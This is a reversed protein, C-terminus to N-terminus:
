RQASRLTFFLMRETQHLEQFWQKHHYDGDMAGIQKLQAWNKGGVRSQESLKYVPQSKKNKAARQLAKARDSLQSDDSDNSESVDSPISVVPTETKDKDEGDAVDENDSYEQKSYEDKDDDGKDKDEDDSARHQRARKEGVKPESKWQNTAFSHEKNERIGKEIGRLKDAFSGRKPAQKKAKKKLAADEEDREQQTQVVPNLQTTTRKEFRVHDVVPVLRFRQKAKDFIM